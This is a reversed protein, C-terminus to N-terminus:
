ECYDSLSGEVGTPLARLIENDESSSLWDLWCVGYHSFHRSEYTANFWEIDTKAKENLDRLDNVGFDFFINNQSIIGIKTAIVENEEILLPTIFSTRSDQYLPQPLNALASEIRPALEVLHDLRYMIGCPHLFFLLYQVDGAGTLYRSAQFLYADFPATITVEGTPVENFRIGGHSKYNDGRDQGPYLVETADTLNSPTQIMFPEECEPAVSEPRWGSDTRAWEVFEFNNEEEITVAQTDQQPEDDSDFITQTIIFIGIAISSLIIVIIFGLYSKERM